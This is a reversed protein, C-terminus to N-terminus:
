QQKKYLAQIWVKKKKRTVLNLGDCLKTTLNKRERPFSTNDCNPCIAFTKPPYFQKGINQRIKLLLPHYRYSEFGFEKVHMSEFNEFLRKVKEISFSQLHGNRSFVNNCNPCKCLSSNIDENNPVSILIYKKSIRQMELITANYVDIPLHELLESSFVLDYSNNKVPVNSSSTCIKDTKVYKLAAESIDVGTINYGNQALINTIIGNGCGLDLITKVDNPISKLVEPLNYKEILNNPDYNEWAKHSELRKNSNVTM